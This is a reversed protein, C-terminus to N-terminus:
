CLHHLIIALRVQELTAEDECDGVGDKTGDWGDIGIGHVKIVCELSAPATIRMHKDVTKSLEKKLKEEAQDTADKKTVALYSRQYERRSVFKYEFVVDQTRGNDTGNEGGNVPMGDEGPETMSVTKRTFGNNLITDTHKPVICRKGDPSLANANREVFQMMARFPGHEWEAGARRVTAVISWASEGAHNSAHLSCGQALLERLAPIGADGQRVADCVDAALGDAHALCVIGESFLSRRDDELPRVSRGDRAFEDNWLRLQELTVVTRGLCDDKSLRDWDFCSIQIRDISPFINLSAFPMDAVEIWAPETCRMINATTYTAVHRKDGKHKTQTRFKVYSDSTGDDDEGRLNRGRLVRLLLKERVRHQGRDEV